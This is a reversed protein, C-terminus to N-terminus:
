DVSGPEVRKSGNRLGSLWDSRVCLKITLKLKWIFNQKCNEHSQLQVYFINFKLSVTENSEGFKNWGRQMAKTVCLSGNAMKQFHLEVWDIIFSSQRLWSAWKVDVLTPVSPQNVSSIITFISIDEYAVIDVELNACLLKGQFSIFLPSDFCM